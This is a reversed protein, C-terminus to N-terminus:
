MMMWCYSKLSGISTTSYFSAKWAIHWLFICCFLFFLCVFFEVICKKWFNAYCSFCVTIKPYIRFKQILKKITINCTKSLCKKFMKFLDVNQLNFSCRFRWWFDFFFDFACKLRIWLVLLFDSSVWLLLFSM